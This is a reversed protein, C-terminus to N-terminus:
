IPIASCRCGEQNEKSGGKTNQKYGTLFIWHEDNKIEFGDMYKMLVEPTDRYPDITITIFEIDKGYVGYKVLDNEFKSM